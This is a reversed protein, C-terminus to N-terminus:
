EHMTFLENNMIKNGVDVVMVKTVEYKLSCNTFERTLSSIDLIIKGTFDIKFYGLVKELNLEKKWFM